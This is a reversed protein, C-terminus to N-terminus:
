AFYIRAHGTCNGWGICPVGLCAFHVKEPTTVISKNLWVNRNQADKTPTLFDNKIKIIM